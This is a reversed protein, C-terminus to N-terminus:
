LLGVQMDKLMAEAQQWADDHTGAHALEDTAQQLLPLIAHM